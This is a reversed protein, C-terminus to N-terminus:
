RSNFLYTLLKERNESVREILLKSNWASPSVGCFFAPLKITSNKVEHFSTPAQGGKKFPSLLEFDYNRAVEKLLEVLYYKKTITGAMMLLKTNEGLPLAKFFWKADNKVMDLFKEKESVQGMPITARPSIDLHAVEGRKYSLGLVNLAKEWNNFWHYPLCSELSFYNLLRDALEKDSLKEPWGRNKFEGNSPNVGVTLIRASKINGFFPIPHVSLNPEYLQEYQFDTSKVYGVLEKFYKDLMKYCWIKRLILSGYTQLLSKDPLFWKSWYILFSNKLKIM